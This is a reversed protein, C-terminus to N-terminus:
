PNGTRPDRLSSTQNLARAVRVKQTEESQKFHPQIINKMTPAFSAIRSTKRLLRADPARHPARRQRNHHHPPERISTAVRLSAAAM